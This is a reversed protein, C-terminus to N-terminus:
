LNIKYKGLFNVDNLAQELYFNAAEPKRNVLRFTTNPM